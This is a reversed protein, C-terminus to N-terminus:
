EAGLEEQANDKAEKLKEATTDVAENIKDVATEMAKAVPHKVGWYNYVTDSGDAPQLSSYDGDTYTPANALESKTAQITVVNQEEGDVMKSTFNLSQWPVPILREGLDLFGGTGLIVFKISGDEGILFKEIDAIVEGTSNEVTTGQLNNSDFIAMSTQNDPAAQISLCGAFLIGLIPTTIRKM